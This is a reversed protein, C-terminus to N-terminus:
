DEPEPRPVVEFTGGMRGDPLELNMTGAYRAGAQVLEFDFHGGTVRVRPEARDYQVEAIIGDSVDDCQPSRCPSTAVDVGGPVMADPNEVIVAFYGGDVDRSFFCVDTDVGDNVDCDGVRLFPAGDNVAFQRGDVTGTLQLGSRGARPQIAAVGSESGGTACAGLVLLAAVALCTRAVPNV